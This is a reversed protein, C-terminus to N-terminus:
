TCLAGLDVVHYAGQVLICRVRASLYEPAVFAGFSAYPAVRRNLDEELLQYARLRAEGQLADAKALRARFRPDAYGSFGTGPGFATSDGGIGRMFPAPDLELTARTVLAMDAGTAKPDPGNLCGLSQTIAVRIGLPKLNNRIIQAIRLNPAEGCFYLRARGHVGRALAKARALQPSMPYVSAPSSGPVGPPVYHDTPPEQFVAALARRDLAFSVAQRLRRSAFLGSKTNFAIMDVGPAPAIRYRPAGFRRDLAGGPVLPGHPDYDFPMVDVRGAQALAAAKTTPVGTSYVIRAVRRPRTGHYGPNRELM